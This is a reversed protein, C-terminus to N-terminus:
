LRSDDNRLKELRMLNAKRTQERREDKSLLSTTDSNENTSGLKIGNSSSSFAPKRYSAGRNSGSSSSSNSDVPANNTMSDPLLCSFHSGLFALRNVYGPISRGVIQNCLDNAFSNCNRSLINYDEGKYSSRLSDIVSSIEDSTGNFMGMDVSLRFKAGSAAKAHTYHTYHSHTYRRRLYM